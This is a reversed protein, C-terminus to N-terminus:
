VTNRNYDHWMSVTNGVIEDFSSQRNKLCSDSSSLIQAANVAEKKIVAEKKPLEDAKRYLAM